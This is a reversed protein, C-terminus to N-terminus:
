KQSQFFKRYEEERAKAAVSQIKWAEHKPEWDNSDKIDRSYVTNPFVRLERQEDFEKIMHPPCIQM